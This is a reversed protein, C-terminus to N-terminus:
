LLGAARELAVLAIRLNSQANVYQTDAKTEALLSDSLELSTGVGAKYRIRTVRLSEDASMQASQAAAVQAKAAAYNFYAERVELDVGNELQQLNIMAKDMDAMAEAVKGHTLGGDFLRWTISLTESLQPQPINEFNPTTGANQVQLAITPLTGARAAKVADDAISVASQAAAIEPRHSHADALVESLAFSPAAVELTESANITSGLDVNLVNALSANALDAANDARVQQVQANALSVQQRLVDERAATGARFLEQATKLNDQAVLVAQDAIGAAKRAEILQFYSNTTDRVVNAHTAALQSVSASYGASAQGVAAEVAGGTYIAWQVTENVSNYNTASIPFIVKGGSPSPFQFSGASQTHQHAYGASFSPLRGSAAQVVRAASAKEDAEAAQYTLNNAIATRVADALTLTMAPSASPSPTPQAASQATSALEFVGLAALLAIASNIRM